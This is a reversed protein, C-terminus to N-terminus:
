KYVPRMAHRAHMPFPSHLQFNIPLGDYAADITRGYAFQAMFHALPAAGVPAGKAVVARSDTHVSIARVHRLEVATPSIVMQM